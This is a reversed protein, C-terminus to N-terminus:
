ASTTAAPRAAAGRSAVSSDRMATSSHGVGHVERFTSGHRRQSRLADVLDGGPDVLIGVLGGASFEGGLEAGGLIAIRLGDASDLRLERSWEGKARSPQTGGQSRPGGPHITDDHLAGRGTEGGPQVGVAVGVTRDHNAEVGPVVGVDEGAVGGLDHSTGPEVDQQGVRGHGGRHRGEADAVVSRNGSDHHRGRM